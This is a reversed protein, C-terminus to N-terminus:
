SDLEMGGHIPTSHTHPDHGGHLPEVDYALRRLTTERGADTISYAGPPGDRNIVSPGATDTYGVPGTHRGCEPARPQRDLDYRQGINPRLLGMNATHSTHVGPTPRALVQAENFQGVEITREHDRTSYGENDGLNRRGNHSDDIDRNGAKQPIVLSSNTDLNSVAEKEPVIEGGSDEVDM